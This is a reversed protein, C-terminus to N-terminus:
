ERFYTKRRSNMEEDKVVNGTVEEFSKGKLREIIFNMSYVGCESNAFQHRTKNYKKKM